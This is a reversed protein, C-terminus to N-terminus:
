RSHMFVVIFEYQRDRSNHLPLSSSPGSFEFYCVGYGLCALRLSETGIGDGLVLIDIDRRDKFLTFIEAEVRRHIEQCYPTLHWVLLEFVFADTEKYFQEMRHDYVHPTVGFKEAARRVNWGGDMAEWFLRECVEYKPLNLRKTVVGVMDRVDVFDFLGENVCGHRGFVKAENLAKGSTM